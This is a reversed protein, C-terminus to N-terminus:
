HGFVTDSILMLSWVPIIQTIDRSSVTIQGRCICHNIRNCVPAAVLILLVGSQNAVKRISSKVLLYTHALIGSFYCVPKVTFQPSSFILKRSQVFGFGWLM